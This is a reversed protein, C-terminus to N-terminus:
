TQKKTFEPESSHESDDDRERETEKTNQQELRIIQRHTQCEGARTESM